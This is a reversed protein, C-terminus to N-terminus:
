CGWVGLLHAFEHTHPAAALTCPEEERNEGESGLLEGLCRLLIARVVAFLRRVFLVLSFFLSLLGLEKPVM